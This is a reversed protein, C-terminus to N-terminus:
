LGVLLWHDGSRQYVVTFATGKDTVQYEAYETTVFVPQRTALLTAIENLRGANAQFAGLLRGQADPHVWAAVKAPDNSAFAAEISALDADLAGRDVGPGIYPSAASIAPASAVAEGPTGFTDSGVPAGDVGVFAGEPGAPAGVTTGLLTDIRETLAPVLNLRYVCLASGGLM